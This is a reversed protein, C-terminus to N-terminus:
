WSRMAGWECDTPFNLSREVQVFRGGLWSIPHASAIFAVCSGLSTGLVGVKEYGQQNLWDLCARVDIISQRAAHITRGVNSSVHYDARATEAPKREAHYAMTMRLASIGFRNLLKALGVHGDPGSNWQPLVVLARRGKAPFWRARATNNIAFPTEVPSTFLLFDGDLRFDSPTRYAYFEDSRCVIDQNLQALYGAPNSPAAERTGNGIPWRSTWDLGWELPRVVRNTDRANLRTEWAHMWDRYRERIM